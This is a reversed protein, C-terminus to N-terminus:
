MVTLVQVMILQYTYNIKLLKTLVEKAEGKFQLVHELIENSSDSGKFRICDETSKQYDRETIDRNCKASIQSLRYFINAYPVSGDTSFTELDYVIMNKLQSQVKEPKYEYKIFSTVFKDSIVSDFIKFNLKLEEVAENSSIGNSIWILCFNNKNMKLPINIKTINRPRLIFGDYYSKNMDQKRFFPQIRASTM